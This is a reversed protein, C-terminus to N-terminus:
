KRSRQTKTAKCMSERTAVLLAQERTTTHLKENHHRTKNCLMPELTESTALCPTQDASSPLLSLLINLLNLWRMLLLRVRCVKALIELM